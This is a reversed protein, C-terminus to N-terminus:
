RKPIGSDRRPSFYLRHYANASEVIRKVYIRTEKYSIADIIRPVSRDGDHKPFWRRANSLGANYAALMMLPDGACRRLLFSAYWIGFALNIHPEFLDEGIEQPLDLERAVQMGTGPMLQMLGQAGARSVARLDFRSEERIMAYVLHPPLGQRACNELVQAPFLLPHLLEAFARGLARRKEGHIGDWVSQYIKISRWPMGYLEHLIGLEFLLRKSSKLIREAVALEREAWDRLGMDLFAKGREVHISAKAYRQTDRPEDLSELIQQYSRRRREHVKELFNILGREGQLEVVGSSSLMPQTFSFDISPYLYFSLSDLSRLADLHSVHESTRGLDHYTQALYFLAAEDRKGSRRLSQQLIAASRKHRGRSSHHWAIRLASLNGFYSSPYKVNLRELAKLSEKIRRSRIYLESAVFLAEPAKPDSPFVVAFREYIRAASVPREMRRYCRALILM